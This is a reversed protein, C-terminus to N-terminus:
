EKANLECGTYWWVRANGKAEDKGSVEDRARVKPFRVALARLTDERDCDYDSGSAIIIGAQRQARLWKDVAAEMDVTRVRGGNVTICDDAFQKALDREQFYNATHEL